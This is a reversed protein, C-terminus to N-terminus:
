QIIRPARAKRSRARVLWSTSSVIRGEVQPESIWPCEGSGEIGFGSALNKQLELWPSSWLENVDNM